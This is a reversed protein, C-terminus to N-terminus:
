SPEPSTSTTEITPASKRWCPRADDRTDAKPVLDLYQKLARQNRRADSIKRSCIQGQELCSQRRSSILMRWRRIQRMAKRVRCQTKSDNRNYFMACLNFYPLAPYAAVKPQRPSFFFPKTMNSYHRIHTAEANLM